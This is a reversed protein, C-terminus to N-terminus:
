ALLRASRRRRSFLELSLQTGVVIGDNSLAPQPITGDVTWRLHGERCALERVLLVNPLLFRAV